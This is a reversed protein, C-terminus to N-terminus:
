GLEHKLVLVYSNLACNTNYKNSSKVGSSQMQRVSHKTHKKGDGTYVAPIKRFFM